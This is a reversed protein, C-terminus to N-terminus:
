SLSRALQMHLMKQGGALLTPKILRPLLRACVCVCVILGLIGFGFKSTELSTFTGFNSLHCIVDTM